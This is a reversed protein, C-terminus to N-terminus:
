CHQPTQQQIHMCVATHVGRHLKPAKYLLVLAQQVPLTANSTQTRLLQAIQLVRVQLCAATTTRKGKLV